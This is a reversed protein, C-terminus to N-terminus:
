MPGGFEMALFIPLQFPFTVIDAIIAVPLLGYYGPHETCVRSVMIPDVTVITFSRKVSTDIYTFEIPNTKTLYVTQTSNSLLLFDSCHDATYGQAVLTAGVPICNSELNHPWTWNSHVTSGAVHITAYTILRVRFLPNTKDAPPVNQFLLNSATQSFHPTEVDYYNTTCMIGAKTFGPQNQVNTQIQKLPITLAFYNRMSNTLDKEFFICLQDDKNIGAKEIKDASCYFRTEVTHRNAKQTVRFSFCGSLFPLLSVLALYAILKSVNQFDLSSSLRKM